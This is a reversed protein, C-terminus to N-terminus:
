LRKAIIFAVLPASIFIDSLKMLFAISYARGTKLTQKQARAMFQFLAAQFILSIGTALILGIGLHSSLLYGLILAVILTFVHAIGSAWLSDKFTLRVGGIFRVSYIFLFAGILIATILSLVFEPTGLYNLLAGLAGVALIVGAAVILVLLCLGIIRGITGPVYTPKAREMADLAAGITSKLEPLKSPDAQAAAYASDVKAGMTTELVQAKKLENPSLEIKDLFAGRMTPIVCAIQLALKSLRSEDAETLPADSETEHVMASVTRLQDAILQSRAATDQEGAQQLMAALKSEIENYREWPGQFRQFLRESSIAADSENIPGGFFVQANQSCYRILFKRCEDAAAQDLKDRCAAFFATACLNVYRFKSDPLTFLPMDKAAMWPAPKQGTTILYFNSFVRIAAELQNIEKILPSENEPEFSEGSSM